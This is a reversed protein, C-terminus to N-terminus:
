LKLYKYVANSSWRGVQKLQDITYNNYKWLDVTRGSRFSHTNYLSPNLNLKELCTKLISRVQGAQVPSKDRFVFFNEEDDFYGGRIRLYNRVTDFPCILNTHLKTTTKPKVATIKIKQPYSYVGHTKSTYLVILIKDKNTGIHINCAKVAHPGFTLEGIRMLGYYALCLLAKYLTQLYFQGPLMRKVEFLLLEFLGKQIPLRCYLKDNVLRCARTLSSLLIKQDSWETYGDDKLVGKIASVYSKVTQSQAGNDILHACFLATRDEWAKPMKDLRILFHNFNRWISLYNKSTSNRVRKNKLKEMIAEMHHRSLRSSGSSSSGPGRHHKM